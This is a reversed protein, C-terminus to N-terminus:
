MHAIRLTKEHAYGFMYMAADHYKSYIGVKSQTLGTLLHRRLVASPDAAAFLQENLEKVTLITGEAEFNANLINEPPRHLPPNHFPEVVSHDWICIATDKHFHTAIIPIDTGM